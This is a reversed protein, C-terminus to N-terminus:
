RYDTERTGKRSNCSRCLPQINEIASSGGKSLPIVHDACLPSQSGCALCRNGHRECLAFWQEDTFSGISERARTRYRYNKGRVKAPSSSRYQAEWQRVHDKNQQVWQRTREVAAARYGPDRRQERRRQKNAQYWAAMNAKARERNAYYWALTRVSESRDPVSDM